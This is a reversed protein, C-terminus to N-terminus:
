ISFPIDLHKFRRNMEERLIAPFRDLDGPLYEMLSADTLHLLWWKGFAELEEGFIAAVQEQQERTLTELTETIRTAM